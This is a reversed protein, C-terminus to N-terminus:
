MTTQSEIRSPYVAVVKGRQGLANVAEFADNWGVAGLRDPDIGPQEALWGAAADLDGASGLIEKLLPSGSMTRDGRYDVALTAYGLGAIERAFGRLSDTLGERGSALLIAPLKGPAGPKVLSGPGKKSSRCTSPQSISM